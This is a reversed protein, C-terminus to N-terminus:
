EFLLLLNNGAAAELLNLSLILKYKFKENKAFTSSVSLLPPPSACLSLSKTKSGDNGTTADLVISSTSPPPPTRPPRPDIDGRTRRDGALNSEFSNCGYRSTCCLQLRNAEKNRSYSKNRLYEPLLFVQSHIVSSSVPLKLNDDTGSYVKSFHKTKM